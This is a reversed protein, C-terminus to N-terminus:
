RLINAIFMGPMLKQRLDLYTDSGANLANIARLIDINKSDFRVNFEDNLKKKLEANLKKKLEANLEKVQRNQDDPTTVATARTNHIPM